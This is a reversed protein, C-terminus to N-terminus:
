RNGSMRMMYMAFFGAFTMMVAVIAAIVALGKM